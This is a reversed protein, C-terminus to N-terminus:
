PKGINSTTLKASDLLESLTENNKEEAIIRIPSKNKLKLAGHIVVIDGSELGNGVVLQGQYRSSTSIYQQKAILQGDNKIALFVYEKDGNRVLAEEPILLVNQPQSEIQARMQMGPLLASKPNQVTARVLISRTIPDVRTDVSSIIATYNVKTNALAVASISMGQRVTNLATAPLTIDLKLTDVKNLTTIIDGPTVLTGVSIDRLGVRGSFPAKIIHNDLRAQAAALRAKASEYALRTEGLLSESTADTKKLTALRDYQRKTEALSSEAEQLLAKEEANNMEVLIDGKNVADGDDFYIADVTDTITASLTTSEYAKLTGLAELTPTIGTTQITKTIVTTETAAMTIPTVLITSSFTLGALINLLKTYPLTQKIISKKLPPNILKTLM